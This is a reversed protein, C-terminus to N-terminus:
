LNNQLEEKIKALVDNDYFAKTQRIANKFAKADSSGHAKICIGDVGLFPAGGYEKYDFKVKLSKFVPKLLLAGLKGRIGGTLIEDKMMGLLTSAVGEYMKLLTNGTFGDCVLVNVDGASVDRPEVNGVFNLNQEEKLLKFAAKTLENGKEEEAGINVLGVSPKENGIVGQYYIKGMHAFQTLYNPKCDVNAGADIIMFSGNKGPMIPALAPREVGKIRGVILTCGALFAGTSGGSIVADCEGDKVLKLAKCISSDKKKRIAMVPHENPEIVEKADIITICNSIFEQKRFEEEILEKPGTIYVKIDKYEMIAQIVGDVVAKPANDGGMGDIAIKM